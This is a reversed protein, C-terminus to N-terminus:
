TRHQRQCFFTRWNLWTFNTWTDYCTRRLLWTAGRFQAAGGGAPSSYAVGWTLCCVCIGCSSSLYFLTLCFTVAIQQRDSLDATQGVSKSGTRCIQQRESLDATQGVSRSDTRCIQQRDSLNATKGVSKSDTRCLHRRDSLNATQGFSKSDTRCIQQRVSLDATQGVSKSDSRCIQQRVSLNASTNRHASV